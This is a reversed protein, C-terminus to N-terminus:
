KAGGKLTINSNRRHKPMPFSLTGPSDYPTTLTNAYSSWATFVLWLHLYSDAYFHRFILAKYLLPRYCIKTLSNVNITKRELKKDMIAWLSKKFDSVGVPPAMVPSFDKRGKQASLWGRSIITAPKMVISTTVLRPPPSLPSLRASRQWRTSLTDVCSCVLSAAAIGDGPQKSCLDLTASGSCAAPVQESGVLWRPESCGAEAASVPRPFLWYGTWSPQQSSPM